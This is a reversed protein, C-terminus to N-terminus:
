CPGPDPRLGQALWWDGRVRSGEAVLRKQIAGSLIAATGAVSHRGQRNDGRFPEHVFPPLFRLRTPWTRSLEVQWSAQDILLDQLPDTTFELM